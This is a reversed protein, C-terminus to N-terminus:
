FNYAYAYKRVRLYSGVHIHVHIFTLIDDFYIAQELINSFEISDGCLSWKWIQRYCPKLFSKPFPKFLFDAICGSPWLKPVDHEIKINISETLVNSGISLKLWQNTTQSFLKTM